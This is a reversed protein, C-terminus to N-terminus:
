LTLIRRATRFSRLWYGDDLRSITVGQSSSAHAFKGRNLYIGVHHNKGPL